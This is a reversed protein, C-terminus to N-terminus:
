RQEIVLKWGVASDIHFFGDWRGIKEAAGFFSAQHHGIFGKVGANESSFIPRFLTKDIAACATLM